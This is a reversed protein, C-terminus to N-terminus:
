IVKLTSYNFCQKQRRDIGVDSIGQWLRLCSAIFTFHSYKFCYFTELTLNAKSHVRHRYYIYKEKRKEISASPFLVLIKTDGTALQERAMRFVANIWSEAFNIGSVDANM